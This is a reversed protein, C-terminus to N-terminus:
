GVADRGVRGVRWPPDLRNEGAFYLIIEHGDPDHLRAERWLWSQDTPQLAFAFGKEELARVQTDLAAPTEFEFYIQAGHGTAAAADHDASHSISFSGGGSPVEFRAYHDSDVLLKFGLKLYFAKARAVDAVPVTIQNLKM